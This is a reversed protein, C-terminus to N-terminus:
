AVKEAVIGNATKNVCVIYPNIDSQDYSGDVAYEIRVRIYSWKNGKGSGEQMLVNRIEGINEKQFLCMAKYLATAISM